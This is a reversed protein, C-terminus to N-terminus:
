KSAAIYVVPISVGFEGRQRAQEDIRESLQEFFSVHYEPPLIRQWGGVFVSKILHHNFFAAGDAFRWVVKETQQRTVTLGARSLLGEITEASLRREQHAELAPLLGSLGCAVLTCSFLEYFERMHGNPNTTFALEAGPKAVRFCEKFVKLPDDFNNIGISCVILDFLDDEFPMSSADGSVFAVNDIGLTEAKFKARKGAARWMDIGCVTSTRGLRQSLELLPYGTGFGIDLAVAVSRLRINSLILNGFPFSWFPVEDYASALNEDDLDFSINLYDTM